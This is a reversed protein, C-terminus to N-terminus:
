ARVRRPDDDSGEFRRNFGPVEIWSILGAGIMNDVSNKPQVRFLSCILQAIYERVELATVPIEKLDELGASCLHFLRKIWVRFQVLRLAAQDAGIKKMLIRKLRRGQEIGTDNPMRILRTGRLVATSEDQAKAGDSFPM